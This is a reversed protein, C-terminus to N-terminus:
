ENPVKTVTSIWDTLGIVQERCAQHAAQADAIWHAAAQESTASDAPAQDNLAAVVPATLCTTATSATARVVETKVRTSEKIEARRRTLVATLREGAARAAGEAERVQAMAEARAAASKIRESATGEHHGAFYAVAHTIVVLLLGIAAIQVQGIVELSGLM